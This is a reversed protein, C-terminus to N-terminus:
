LSKYKKSKKLKETEENFTKLINMGYGATMVPGMMGAAPTIVKGAIAGQGMGQLVSGGVGLMVGAGVYDKTMDMLKSKRKKKKM